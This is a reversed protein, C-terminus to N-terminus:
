SPTSSRASTTSWCPRRSRTSRSGSWNRPWSTRPAGHDRAPVAPGRPGLGPGRHRQQTGRLDGPCLPRDAPAAPGHLPRLRRRDRGPHRGRSGNRRVAHLRRRPVAHRGLARDGAAAPGHSRPHAPIRRLENRRGLAQGPRPDPPPLAGALGCGPGAHHAPHRGQGAAHDGRRGDGDDPFDARELGGGAAAPCRCDPLRRRATARNGTGAHEPQRRRPATGAGGAQNRSGQAAAARARRHRRRARGAGGRLQAQGPQPGRGPPGAGRVGRRRRGARIGVCVRRVTQGALLSGADESIVEPHLPIRGDPTYFTQGRRRTEADLAGGPAVFSPVDAIAYFM